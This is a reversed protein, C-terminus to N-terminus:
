RLRTWVQSQCVPGLCGSVTMRDGEVRLRGAYERNHAPVFARGQYAGREPVMNWFVRTGVTPAAVPQGQQNFVATITGCISNGCPQASVNAVQGNQDPQTRWLGLPNPWAATSTAMLVAISLACTHTSTRMPHIM